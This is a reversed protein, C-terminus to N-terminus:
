PMMSDEKQRFGYSNESFQEEFIPTLERCIAQQIVRDVLTPIGLKRFKGKEEKPIKVRRVPNPKYKGEKLRQIIIEKNEKLYPLLEDIEMGDIGGKGKNSKVKKYAENMNRSRLIVDLLKNTWIDTIARNNEAIRQYDFVETQERQEASVMLLYDELHLQRNKFGDNTVKM